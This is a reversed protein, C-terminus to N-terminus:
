YGGWFQGKKVDSIFVLVAEKLSLLFWRCSCKKLWRILWGLSGRRLWM